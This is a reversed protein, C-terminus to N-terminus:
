ESGLNSGKDGANCASENGSLWWSLWWLKDTVFPLKRSNGFLGMKSTFYSATKNKFNM